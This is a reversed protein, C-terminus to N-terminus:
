AGADVRGIRVFDLCPARSPAKDAINGHFGLQHLNDDPTMHPKPMEGEDVWRWEACKHPELIQPEGGAWEAEMYVTTYQLDDQPMLNNAIGVVKIDKISLGSEELLERRAAELWSEGFDLHGGPFCWVGAMHSGNRLGVLVKTGRRVIIAVGTGVAGKARRETVAASGAETSTTTM